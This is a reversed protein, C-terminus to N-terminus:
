DEKLPTFGEGLVEYVEYIIMFANPDVRKIFVQLDRIEKNKLVTMIM